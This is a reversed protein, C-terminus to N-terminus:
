WWDGSPWPPEANNPFRMPISGVMPLMNAAVTFIRSAGCIHREYVRGDTASGM